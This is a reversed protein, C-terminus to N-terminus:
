FGFIFFCKAGSINKSESTAQLYMTFNIFFKGAIKDVFKDHVTIIEETDETFKIVGKSVLCTGPIEKLCVHSYPIFFSFLGLFSNTLLLYLLSCQCASMVLRVVQINQQKNVFSVFYLLSQIERGLFPSIM